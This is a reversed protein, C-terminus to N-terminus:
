GESMLRTHLASVEAAAREWTFFREVRARGARGMQLRLGSCTALRRIADAVQSVDTGEVLLGTVDREVAEPVGGSDGGIVPKGAAAAELFVLGFGEFDGDDVRNPHLFVDCAAYYAPLEDDAVVGAFFVRDRLELRDVLGELRAREEGNGVIVYRLAPLEHRLAHIAEIAIDHGKRRQLRGVTLLVTEGPGAYRRRVHSGDAAGHFRQADVGAYIPRTIKERPVGLVELLVSDNRCHVVVARAAGYVRKALFTLERSSLYTAVDEGLVWCVYGPGGMAHSLYAAVGEPLARPVHVLGARRSLLTRIQWAVRVYHQLGRPDIVGWRRTAISRRLIRLRESMATGTAPSMREDTLIQVEAQELRSYINHCFVASGGVAPPFMESVLLVRIASSPVTEVPLLQAATTVSRALTM